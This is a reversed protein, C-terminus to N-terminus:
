RIVNDHLMDAHYSSRVLPASAVNKFGLDLAFDKWKEFKAPEVYRELEWHAGSPPLYQGITLISAGTKRIDCITTEVEEDSEGMGVMLGSKVATGSGSLEVASKLVELSRRYDAKIRIERSLREVTEINHNFVVPEANLVTKLNDGLYDPTLVEVEIAPDRRRIECITEAFQGSGGDSLDDRTVSTVVVYKLKLRVAAEAVNAPESPDAAAPMDCHKVACFRCNRTCEDGLIMFTATNRRWCEDLNPCGASSCVTNLNLEKLIRSVEGKGSGVGVKVRIWPPFKPRRQKTKNNM